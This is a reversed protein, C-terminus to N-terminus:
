LSCLQEGFGIVTRFTVGGFCLLLADSSGSTKGAQRRDPGKFMDSEIRPIGNKQAAGAEVAAAAAATAGFLAAGEHAPAAPAWAANGLNQATFESCRFKPSVTPPQILGELVAWHGLTVWVKLDVGIRIAGAGLFLFLFCFKCNKTPRVANSAM